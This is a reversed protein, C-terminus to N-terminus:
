VRPKLKKDSSVLVETLMLSNKATELLRFFVLISKLSDPTLSYSIQVLTQTM